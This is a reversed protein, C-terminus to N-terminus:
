VSTANYHTVKKKVKDFFSGIRNEFNEYMTMLYFKRWYANDKFLAITM